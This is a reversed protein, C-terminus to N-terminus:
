HRQTQYATRKSVDMFGIDEIERILQACFASNGDQEAAYVLLHYFLDRQAHSAGILPLDHRVAGLYRLVSPYDKRFYALIAESVAIGVQNYSVAVANTQGDYENKMRQLFENAAAHQDTAALVIMDHISGFANGLHQIRDACISFLPEWYESTDIGYLHLRLLLSSYNQIDIPAAPSQVVLSSEPNRVEATLLELVQSYQGKELLFLCLHWWLHHRMQNAGLWNESLGHLWKIGAEVDGRMYLVHAVAHAGWIDAPDIEVSMRGYREADPLNGAEENAFARLALFGGYGDLNSNWCPAAREIVNRMWHAQGTWFIEEHVIQHALLDLPSHDLWDELLKAGAISNGMRAFKLAALLNWERTNQELDHDEVDTILSNITEWAAPNRGGHLMWAKILLALSCQPDIVIAQDIYDMANARMAILSTIGDQCLQNTSLSSNDQTM